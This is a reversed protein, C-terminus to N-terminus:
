TVVRQCGLVVSGQKVRAKLPIIGGRDPAQGTVLTQYYSATAIAPYLYPRSLATMCHALTAAKSHRLKLDSNHFVASWAPLVLKIQQHSVYVAEYDSRMVPMLQM